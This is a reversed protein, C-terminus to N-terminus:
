IVDTSLIKKISPLLGIRLLIVTSIWISTSVSENFGTFPALSAMTSIFWAHSDSLKKGYLLPYFESSIFM